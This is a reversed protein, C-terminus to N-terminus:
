VVAGDENAGEIKKAPKIFHERSVGLQAQVMLYLPGNELFDAIDEQIEDTTFGLEEMMDQLFPVFDPYARQLIDLRKWRAAAADPAELLSM